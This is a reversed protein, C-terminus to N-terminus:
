PIRRPWRSQREVTPETSAIWPLPRRHRDSRNKIPSRWEALPRGVLSVLASAKKLQNTKIRGIM